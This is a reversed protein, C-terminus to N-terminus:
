QGVLQASLKQPVFLSKLDSILRSFAAALDQGLSGARQPERNQQSQPTSPLARGKKWKSLKRINVGICLLLWESQVAQLGRTFFQRFRLNHKFHGFLPEIMAKRRGYIAKGEESEMRQRMEQM